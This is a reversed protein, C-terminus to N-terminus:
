LRPVSTTVFNALSRRPTPRQQTVSLEGSSNPRKCSLLVSAKPVQLGLLFPMDDTSACVLLQFLTIYYRFTLTSQQCDSPFVFTIHAHQTSVALTGHNVTTFIMLLSISDLFRTRSYLLTIPATSLTYWISSGYAPCLFPMFHHIFSNSRKISTETNLLKTKYLCHLTFLLKANKAFTFKRKRESYTM